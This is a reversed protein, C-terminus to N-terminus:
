VHNTDGRFKSSKKGEAVMSKKGNAIRMENLGPYKLIWQRLAEDNGWGLHRAIKPCSLGQRLLTIIVEFYEDMQDMRPTKRERSSEVRTM